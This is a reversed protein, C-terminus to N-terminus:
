HNLTCPQSSLPVLDRDSFQDEWFAQKSIMNVTGWGWNPIFSRIDQIVAKGETGKEGQVPRAPFKQWTFLQSGNESLRLFFYELHAQNNQDYTIFPMLVRDRGANYLVSCPNDKFTGTYRHHYRASDRGHLDNWLCHFVSCALGELRRDAKIGERTRQSRIAYDVVEPIAKRGACDLVQIDTEDVPGFPGRKWFRNDALPLGYRFFGRDNLERILFVKRAEAVNDAYFSVYAQLDYYWKGCYWMGAVTYAFAEVRDGRDAGLTYSRYIGGYDQRVDAYSASNRDTLYFAIFRTKDSNCIFQFCQDAVATSDLCLTVSDLKEQPLSPYTASIFDLLPQRADGAGGQGSLVPASLSCYIMVFFIRAANM